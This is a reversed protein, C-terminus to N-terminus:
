GKKLWTRGAVYVIGSIISALVPALSENDIKVGFKFALLPSLVTLITLYFETTQWGPRMLIEGPAVDRSGGGGM